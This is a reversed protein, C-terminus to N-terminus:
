TSLEKQTMFVQVNTRKTALSFRGYATEYDAAYLYASGSLARSWHEILAERNGSVNFAHQGFEVAEAEYALRWAGRFAYKAVYLFRERCWQLAHRAEHAVLGESPSTTPFYCTTGVTVAFTENWRKRWAPAFIGVIFVVFPLWLHNWKWDGKKRVEIEVKQGVETGFLEDNYGGPYRWSVVVKARKKFMM